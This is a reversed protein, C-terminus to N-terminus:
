SSAEQALAGAGPGCLTIRSDVPIQPDGITTVRWTWVGALGRYKGSTGHIPISVWQLNAVRYRDMVGEAVLNGDPLQFQETVYQMVHGEATRSVMHNIGAGHGVLTAGDATYIDDFYAIMLGVPVDRPDFDRDGYYHITREVYQQTACGQTAPAPPREAQAPLASAGLVLASAASLVAAASRLIRRSELLRM